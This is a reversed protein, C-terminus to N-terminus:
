PVYKKELGEWFDIGVTKHLFERSPGGPPNFGKITGEDHLVQLLEIALKMLAGNMPGPAWIKAGIAEWDKAAFDAAAGISGMGWIWVDPAGIAQYLQRIEEKTRIGFKSQPIRAQPLIIDVGLKLCAKAREIVEDDGLTSGAEIRAVVLVDSDEKDRAELVAGIKGLYEERSVVQQIDLGPGKYPHKQDNIFIGAVGLRILDQATRYASLAGGFGDEADFILPLHISNMMNRLSTIAETATILGYPFGFEANRIGATCMFMAKFGVHEVCAATNCDFAHPAVLIGPEKLIERLMTSKRM